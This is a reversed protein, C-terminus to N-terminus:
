SLEKGDIFLDVFADNMKKSEPKKDKLFQSYEKGIYNIRREIDCLQYSVKRFNNNIINQKINKKKQEALNDIFKKKNQYFTNQTMNSNDVNNNSDNSFILYNIIDNERSYNNDKIYVLLSNVKFITQAKIFKTRTHLNREYFQEYDGNSIFLIVKNNNNSLNFTKLIFDSEEKNNDVLYNLNYFLKM